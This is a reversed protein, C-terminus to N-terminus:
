KIYKSLVGMVEDLKEEHTGDEFSTKVCSEIHHRLIMLNAKKLLASVAMIQNSIDVCYREDETMRIIADMQGKATKLLNIAEVHEHKM